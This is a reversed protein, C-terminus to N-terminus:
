QVSILAHWIKQLIYKKENYDFGKLTPITKDNWIMYLYALNWSPQVM